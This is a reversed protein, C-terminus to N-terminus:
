SRTSSFPYLLNMSCQTCPNCKTVQLHSVHLLVFQSRRGQLNFLQVIVDCLDKGPLNIEAYSSFLPYQQQFIRSTPRAEEETVRMDIQRIREASIVDNISKVGLVQKALRMVLRTVTTGSSSGLFKRESTDRFEVM